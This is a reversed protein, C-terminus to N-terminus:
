RGSGSLVFAAWHKVPAVTPREQKQPPRSVRQVTDDFDQGRSRALSGIEGPHRYLALQAQRLAELPSLQDVWLKRYFLRMLAATADGDGKWLSAVVNRAGALHFARQLGFVGGGALAKGLGTQCASLVALELGDLDLGAVAEATLIGG